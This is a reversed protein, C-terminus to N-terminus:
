PKARRNHDDTMLAVKKEHYVRNADDVRVQEGDVLLDLAGIMASLIERYRDARATEMERQAAIHTISDRDQKAKRELDAIREHLRRENATQRM